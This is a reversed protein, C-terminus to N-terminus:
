LRISLVLIDERLLTYFCTIIYLKFDIIKQLQTGINCENIGINSLYVFKAKKIGIMLCSWKTVVVILVSLQLVNCSFFLVRVLVVNILLLLFSENSPSVSIVVKEKVATVICLLICRKFLDVYTEYFDRSIYEKGKEAIVLKLSVINNFILYYNKKDTSVKLIRESCM